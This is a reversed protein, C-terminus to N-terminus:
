PVPQVPQEQSPAIHMMFGFKYENNPYDIYGSVGFGSYDQTFVAIKGSTDISGQVKAHRFSYDWGLRMASEKTEPTVELETGLSLRDSVKKAYQIKYLHTQNLMFEPSKFNPQRVVQMSVVNNKHNYRLGFSGISACNSAIYTLDVGAQFKKSLMQTYSSNFIWTGQWITKVSYTYIPKNVEVAMEYMNRQDNKAYTNFNLKCDIQNDIRKCFRGNVSGDINVRSIMLLSNDSNTFNAGFQYLYGVDRLTTGLFLTHTSQLYKNVSKDVEFRFGDFNDQTTIFKYEKNLNEFLLANPADFSNTFPSNAQEKLANPDDDNMKNKKGEEDIDPLTGKEGEIPLESPKDDCFTIRSSRGSRGWLAANGRKLAERFPYRWKAAQEGRERRWRHLLGLGAIEM